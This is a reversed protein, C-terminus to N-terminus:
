EDPPSLPLRSGHRVHLVYVSQDAVIFLLRYTGRNGKGFLLHRVPKSFSLSEPALPCREPHRDLSNVAREARNLWDDAAHPAQKLIHAHITRLNHTARPTLVVLYTM